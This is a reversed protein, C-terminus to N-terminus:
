LCASSYISETQEHRSLISLGSSKQTPISNPIRPLDRATVVMRYSIVQSGRRLTVLVRDGPQHAAIYHGLWAASIVPIGDVSLIVDGPQLRWKDAPYGQYVSTIIVENDDHVVSSWDPHTDRVDMGLWKPQYTRLFEKLDLHAVENVVRELIRGDIYSAKSASDMIRAVVHEGALNILERILAHS